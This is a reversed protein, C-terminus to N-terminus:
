LNAAPSFLPHFQRQLDGKAVGFGRGREFRSNQLERCPQFAKARVDHAAVDDHFLRVFMIALASYEVHIDVDGDRSGVNGNLPRVRTAMSVLIRIDRQAIGETGGAAPEGIIFAPVPVVDFSVHTQWTAPDAFEIGVLAETADLGVITPHEVKV